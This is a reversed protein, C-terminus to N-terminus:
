QEDGAGTRANDGIGTRPGAGRQLAVRKPLRIAAAASWGAETTPDSQYATSHFFIQYNFLLWVWGLGDGRVETKLKTLADMEMGPSGGINNGQELLASLQEVGTELQKQRDEFHRSTDYLRNLFYAFPYSFQLLLRAWALADIAAPLFNSEHQGTRNQYAQRWGKSQQRFQFAFFPPSNSSQLASSGVQQRELLQSRAHNEYRTAYFFFRDLETREPPRNGQPADPDPRNNNNANPANGNFRNCAFFQDRSHLSWAGLSCFSAPFPDFTQQPNFGLCIEWCVLGLLVPIPLRPV